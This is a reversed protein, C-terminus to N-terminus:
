SIESLIAKRVKEKLNKGAELTPIIAVTNAAKGTLKDNKGRIIRSRVGFKGFGSFQINYGKELALEIGEIIKTVNTLAEKKSRYLGEKMLFDVFSDKNIKKRGKIKENIEKKTQELNDKM